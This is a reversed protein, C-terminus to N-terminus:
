FGVRDVGKRRESGQRGGRLLRSERKESVEPSRSGPCRCQNLLSRRGFADVLMRVKLTTYQAASLKLDRCLQQEETSLLQLDQDSEQADPAESAARASFSVQNRASRRTLVCPYASRISPQM